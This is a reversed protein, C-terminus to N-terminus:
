LPVPIQNIVLGAATIGLLESQALRPVHDLRHSHSHSQFIPCFFSFTRITANAVHQKSQFM